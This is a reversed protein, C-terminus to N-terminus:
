KYVRTEMKRAVGPFSEVLAEVQGFRNFILVAGAIDAERSVATSFSEFNISIIFAFL